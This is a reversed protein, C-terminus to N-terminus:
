DRDVAGYQTVLGENSRVFMLVMSAKLPTYADRYHTMKAGPLPKDGTGCWATVRVLASKNDIPQM